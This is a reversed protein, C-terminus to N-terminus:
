EFTTPMQQGSIKDVQDLNALALGKFKLENKLLSSGLPSIAAPIWNISSYSLLVSGIGSDISGLYGQSNRGIFAEFNNISSHGQDAGYLTSSDGLFYKASGM